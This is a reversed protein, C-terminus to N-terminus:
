CALVAFRGPGPGPIPPLRRGPNETSRAPAAPAERRAGGLVWLELQIPRRSGGIGAELCPHKARRAPQPRM